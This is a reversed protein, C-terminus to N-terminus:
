IALKPDMLLPLLALADGDQPGKEKPAVSSELAELTGVVIESEPATKCPRLIYSSREIRQAEIKCGSSKGLTLPHKNARLVPVPHEFSSSGHLFYLKTYM